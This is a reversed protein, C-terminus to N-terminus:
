ENRIADVPNATASKFSQIWITFLAISIVIIGPVLFHWINMDMKIVFTELWDTIAYNAIPIAVVFAILFLKVFDMSIMSLINLINAGFVKRIGISKTLQETHFSVLGILGLIAITIALGSFFTLLSGLRIERTYSDNFIDNYFHYQFPLGTEHQNWIAEIGKVSSQLDSSNIKVTLYKISNVPNEDYIPRIVIPRLEVKSLFYDFDDIIGAVKLERGDDLGRISEGIPDKWELVKRAKENIIITPNKSSANNTGFNNGKTLNLGFTNLFDEDADILNMLYDDQEGHVKKFLEGNASQSPIQSSLSSSVVESLQSVENKFATRSGLRNINTVVMLNDKEFGLDRNRLFDIQSNVTFSFIIICFSILFQFVLLGNRVPSKSQGKIQVGKLARSPNFSSLYFAPYIGSLVAVILAIGIIYLLHMPNQSISLNWHIDFLHPITINIVEYIFVALVTALLSFLISEILFQSKLQRKTTGIVKRLGIEKARKMSRATTLNTYNISALLLIVIAVISFVLMFTKSGSKGLVNYGYFYVESLPEIEYGISNGREFFAEISKGTLREIAGGANNMVLEPFKERLAQPDVQPQITFYTVLNCWVWSWEYYEIEGDSVNSILISYSIHSDTPADEMVAIIKYTNNEIDILQNLASQRGFYKKAYSESLVVQNPETFLDESKGHLIDFSFVKLFNSDVSILGSEQFIEEGVKIIKEGYYPRIRTLHKIEPFNDIMATGVAPATVPFTEDMGNWKLDTHLRYISHYNAQFRDVKRETEVYKSIFLFTALGIALGSINILTYTRDKIAKRIAIKIYNRIM